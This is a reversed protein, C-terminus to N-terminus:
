TPAFGQWPWLTSEAVSPLGQGPNDPKIKKRFLIWNRLAYWNQSCEKRTRRQYDMTGSTRSLVRRYYNVGMYYSICPERDDCVPLMWHSLLLPM